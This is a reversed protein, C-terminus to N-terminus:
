QLYLNHVFHCNSQANPATFLILHVCLTDFAYTRTFVLHHGAWRMSIIQRSTDPIVIHQTSADITEGLYLVHNNCSFARFSGIKWLFLCLRLMFVLCLHLGGSKTPRSSGVTSEVVFVHARYRQCVVTRRRADEQVGYVAHIGQIEHDLRRYGRRLLRGVHGCRRAHVHQRDCRRRWGNSINHGFHRRHQDSHLHHREYQQISLRIDVIACKDAYRWKLTILHANYTYRICHRAMSSCLLVFAFWHAELHGVLTIIQIHTHTVCISLHM